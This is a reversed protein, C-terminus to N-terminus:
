NDFHLKHYSIIEDAIIRSAHKNIHNDMDNVTYSTLGEKKLLHYVPIYPLGYDDLMSLFYTNMIRATEDSMDADMRPFPLLVLQINSEMCKEHLTRLKYMFDTMLNSDILVSVENDYQKVISLYVASISDESLTSEQMCYSLIGKASKTDPLGKKVKFMKVLEQKQEETLSYFNFKELLNEWRSHFYNVSILHKTFFSNSNNTALYTNPKVLKIEDTKVKNQLYLWDNPCLQLYIVKPRFPISMILQLENNIDMGCKGLNFVNVSPIATRFLNSFRDEEYKIGHGETYSDGVFLVAPKGNRMMPNFDIDRFGQNNLGWYYHLWTKSCYTDNKGNTEPYFTFFLEAAYVLFFLILASAFVNRQKDSIKNVLYSYIYPILFICILLLFARLIYYAVPFRNFEFMKPTVFLITINALVFLLISLINM